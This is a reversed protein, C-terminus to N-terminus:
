KLGFAFGFKSDMLTSNVKLNKKKFHYEERKGVQNQPHPPSHPHLPPPSPHPHIAPRRIMQPTRRHLPLGGGGTTAERQLGDCLHGLAPEVTRPWSQRAAEWWQEALTM